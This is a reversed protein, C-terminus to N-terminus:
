CSKCKREWKNTNFIKWLIRHINCCIKCIALPIVTVTYFLNKWDAKEKIWVSFPSKCQLDRYETWIHPFVSWYDANIKSFIIIIHDDKYKKWLVVVINQAPMHFILLTIAHLIRSHGALYEWYSWCGLECWKCKLIDPSRKGHSSYNLCGSNGIDQNELRSYNQNQLLQM